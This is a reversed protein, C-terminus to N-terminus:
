KKGEYEAIAKVIPLVDYYHPEGKYTLWQREIDRAAECLKDAARLRSIISTTLSRPIPYDDPEYLKLGNILEDMSYKESM